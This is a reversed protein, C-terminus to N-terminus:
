NKIIKYVVLNNREEDIIRFIYQGKQFSSIDISIDEQKSDLTQKLMEKGKLDYVELSLNGANERTYNINILDVTPNPFISFADFHPSNAGLIVEIVIGDESAFVALKFSNDGVGAEGVEFEVFASEDLPIGPYEVFFRYTGQPLFGYEFEGEDNTEGYAILEFDDNDQDTRGGTRKRRVGCKRRSARRRADIRGDDDEFDEEITGGILGDGDAATLERPIDTMVITVSADDNLELTDAEDWLFTDGFYTPVYTDEDSSVNILFDGLVVDPFSFSSSAGTISAVTDFRVEGEEIELLYGDVDEPILADSDDTVDVSVIATALVEVENSSLTVGTALTNSILLSYEGMSNRDIDTITYNPDTAGAVDQGNLQWQYTNATGNASSNLEQTSGAPIQTDSELIADVPDQNTYSLVAVGAVAELDGFDLSNGNLNIDVANVLGSFDSELADIDNDSLDLIELADLSEIAAPLSGILGNGPLELREVRDGGVNLTVGFWTSVDPDGWNAADTWNTGDMNDFLTQLATADAELQNAGMGTNLFINTGSYYDGVIIDNDGDSDIDGINVTSYETVIAPIDHDFEFTGTGDNLWLKPYSIYGGSVLDVDGDQDIDALFSGYNSGTEVNSGGTFVGMDNIIVYSETTVYEAANSAFVDIDGDGDLDAVDVDSISGSTVFSQGLELMGNNNTLSEVGNEERALVVDMDTDSDLNGLAMKNAEINYSSTMSFTLSGQNDYIRIYKNSVGNLRAVIDLDGDEDMDAIEVQKAEYGLGLNSNYSFTGTGDNTYILFGPYGGDSELAVVMDIDGDGDLNGFAMQYGGGPFEQNVTFNGLGDNIWSRGIQDGVQMLDLDGDGDIDVLQQDYTASVTLIDAGQDFTGGGQNDRIAVNGDFYFLDADGDGDLDAPQSKGPFKAQETFGGTGNSILVFTSDESVAVFDDFNDTDVSTTFVDDGNGSPSLQVNPNESFNTSADSLISGDNELPRVALYPASLFGVLELDGDNDFDLSYARDNFSYTPSFATNSDTFNGSGDNELVQIGNGFSTINSVYVIDEDTDGDVDMVSLLRSSVYSPDSGKFGTSDPFNMGVNEFLTVYDNYTPGDQSTEAIIDLDGDGDVDVAFTGDDDLDVTPFTTAQAAFNGSGDNIWMQSSFSGYTGNQMFLDLDSDGDFDALITNDVIELPITTLRSVDFSFGGNNTLIIPSDLYSVYVADIDGDGDLDGTHVKSFLTAGLTVKPEFFVSQALPQIDNVIRNAHEKLRAEFDKKDKQQANASVVVGMALAVAWHKYNLKPKLGIKEGLTSIKREISKLKEISDKRKRYRQKQFEGERISKHFRSALKSHKNKLRNLLSQHLSHKM